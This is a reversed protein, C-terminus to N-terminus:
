LYLLVERRTANEASFEIRCSTACLTQPACIGMADTPRLPRASRVAGTLTYLHARTGLSSYPAKTPIVNKKLFAKVQEGTM